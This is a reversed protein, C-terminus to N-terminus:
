AGDPQAYFFPRAAEVLTRWEAPDVADGDCRLGLATDVTFPEGAPTTRAVSWGAVRTTGAESTWEGGVVDVEPIEGDLLDPPGTVLVDDHVDTLAGDRAALEEIFAVSEPRDERSTWAPDDIAVTAPTVRTFTMAVCGSPSTLEERWRGNPVDDPRVQWTGIPEWGDPPAVIDMRYVPLDATMEDPVAPGADPGPLLWRGGVAAAAVILLGLAFVTGARGLRRSRGLRMVREVDVPVDPAARLARERLDPM